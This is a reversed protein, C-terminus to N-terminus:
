LISVRDGSGTERDGDRMLQKFDHLHSKRKRYRRVKESRQRLEINCSREEDASADSDSYSSSSDGITFTESKPAKIRRGALCQLKNAFRALKNLNYGTSNLFKWSFAIGLFVLPPLIV